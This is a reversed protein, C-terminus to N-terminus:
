ILGQKGWVKLNSDPLEIFSNNLLTSFMNRGLITRNIGPLCVIVQASKLAAAGAEGYLCKHSCCRFTKTFILM